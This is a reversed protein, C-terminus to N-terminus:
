FDIRLAAGVQTPALTPAFVVTPEAARRRANRATRVTEASHKSAVYGKYYFVITAAAALVTTGVLVNTMLARRKGASCASDVTGALVDGGAALDSAPSCADSGSLDTRSPNANQWARIANEKDERLSGRVQMGTITMATASAGTLVMSTWFLARSTRGPNEDQSITGQLSGGPNDIIRHDGGGGGGDGGGGGVLKNAELEADVTAEEGGNVTVRADYRLKGEAEISLNYTGATLGAIRATGGVLSGKVAKDLYITGRDVNAKVVLSGQDSAGSMRNYLQKGWRQMDASGTEAAPIIDTTTKENSKSSVDLLRLTVQYGASQKEVKGYLLKDAALEQGIAAMCATAENDCSSLMKMELLDKDSGAALTFPGTGVTARGRLADTLDKAVKTSKEDLGGGTDIVELGLIAITPKGPGAAASRPALGVLLGVSLVVFALARQM